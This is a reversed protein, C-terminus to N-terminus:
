PLESRRVREMHIHLDPGKLNRSSAQGTNISGVVHGCSAPQRSSSVEHNARRAWCPDAHFPASGTTTIRSKPKTARTLLMLSEWLTWPSAPVADPCPAAVLRVPGM